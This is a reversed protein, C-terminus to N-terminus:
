QIAKDIFDQAFHKQQVYLIFDLLLRFVSNGGDRPVILDAKDQFYFPTNQPSCMIGVADLTEYDLFDDGFYLTQDKSINNDTQIAKVKEIKKKNIGTYCLNDPIGLMKARIKTAEDTRGTLFAIPLLNNKVSTAIAYGDQVCFNKAIYRSYDNDSPYRSDALVLNGNTLCGDIDTIIIKINKIKEVLDKNKLNKIFWNKDSQYNNM